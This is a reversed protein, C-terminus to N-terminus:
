PFIVITRDEIRFRVQTYALIDLVESLNLNRDVKGTYTGTPISGEFVVDLDYWRSLQRMVTQIDAREFSFFGEKWAITEASNVEKVHLDDGTLVAQQDPKLLLGKGPITQQDNNKAVSVRVSGEMLTTNVSGEDAYANINFRTGLVEVKQTATSVIFPIKDGDSNRRASVEFYGEGTLYIERTQGDFKAPYKLSSAANLWVETGDQLTLHYQGGRPTTIQHWEATHTANQDAKSAPEYLIKGDASKVVHVGAAEAIKGNDADDLPITTGDGLSLVAKNGGPAGPTVESAQLRPPAIKTKNDAGPRVYLWASVALVAFLAAAAYRYLQPARKRQTRRMALKQWTQDRILKLEGEDLRPEHENLQLYWQELLAQEEPTCTGSAHKKLLRLADKNKMVFTDPGSM